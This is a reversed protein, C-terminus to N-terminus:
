SNWSGDATVATWVDWMRFDYTGLTLMSEITFTM